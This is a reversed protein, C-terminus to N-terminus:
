HFIAVMNCIIIAFLLIVISPVMILEEFKLLGYLTHTHTIVLRNHSERM